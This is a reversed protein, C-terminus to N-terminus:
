KRKRVEVRNKRSESERESERKIEKREAVENVEQVNENRM